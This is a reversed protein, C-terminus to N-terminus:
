RRPDDLRLFHEHIFPLLSPAMSQAIRQQLLSQLGHVTGLVPEHVLLNQIRSPLTTVCQVLRSDYLTLQAYDDERCLAVIRQTAQRIAEHPAGTATSTPGRTHAASALARCDIPSLVGLQYAAHFYAIADASCDGTTAGARPASVSDVLHRLQERVTAAAFPWPSTDREAPSGPTQFREGSPVSVSRFPEGCPLTEKFLRSVVETWECRQAVSILTSAARSHPSRMSDSCLRASHREQLEKQAALSWASAKDSPQASVLRWENLEDAFDMLGKTPPHVRGDLSDLRSLADEQQLEGLQQRHHEVQEDVTRMWRCRPIAWENLSSYKPVAAQAVAADADLLPLSMNPAAMTSSEVCFVPLQTNATTLTAVMNRTYPHMFDDTFLLSLFQTSNDFLQAVMSQAALAKPCPTAATTSEYRVVSSYQFVHVPIGHRECALRLGDMAQLRAISKQRLAGQAATGSTPATLPMNLTQSAIMAAQLALNDDFRFNKQVLYVITGQDPSTRILHPAPLFTKTRAWLVAPWAKLQLPDNTDSSTDGLDPAIQGPQSPSDQSFSQYISLTPGPSQAATSLLTKALAPTTSVTTSPRSLSANEQSASNPPSSDLMLDSGDDSDSADAMSAEEEFPASTRDKGEYEFRSMDEESQDLRSEDGEIVYSHTVLTVTDKFVVSAKKGSPRSKLISKPAQKDVSMRQEQVPPGDEDEELSGEYVEAVQDPLM